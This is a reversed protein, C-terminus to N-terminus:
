GAMVDRTIEPELTAPAMAIANPKKSVKGHNLVDLGCQRAFVKGCKFCPWTVNGNPEPRGILDAYDFRHSCFARKFRSATVPKPVCRLEGCECRFATVLRDGQWWTEPQGKNWGSLHSIKHAFRALASGAGAASGEPSDPFQNSDKM